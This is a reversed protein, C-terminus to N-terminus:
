ADPGSRPDVDVASREPLHRRGARRRRHHRGLADLYAAKVELTLPVAGALPLALKMTAPGFVFKGGTITGPHLSGQPDTPDPKFSHAGSFCTAKAQAACQSSFQPTSCCSQPEALWTRASAGPDNVFSSALLRLLLLTAGSNVSDDLAQQLDISGGAMTAIGGLVAGLANDVSGDNDYDHGIKAATSSNPLVLRSVVLERAGAPGLDRSLDLRARDPRWRADPTIRM